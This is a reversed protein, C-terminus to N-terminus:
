TGYKTIFQKLHEYSKNTKSNARAEKSKSALKVARRGLRNAKKLKRDERSM